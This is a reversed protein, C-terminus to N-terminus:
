PTLQRLAQRADAELGPLENQIASWIVPLSLRDYAHRLRNGMGRIDNWPQGPVLQAAQDGLRIAAEAFGNWVGSSPTV